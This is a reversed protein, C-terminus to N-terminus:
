HFWLSLMHLQMQRPDKPMLLIFLIAQVLLTSGLFWPLGQGPPAKTETFQLSVEKLSMKNIFGSFTVTAASAKFGQSIPCNIHNM